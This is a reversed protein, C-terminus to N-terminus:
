ILLFRLLSLSLAQHCKFFSALKSQETLNKTMMHEEDNSTQNYDDWDIDESKCSDHSDPSCTNATFDFEEVSTIESSSSERGERVWTRSSSNYYLRKHERFIKLNLEKNCHECFQRRVRKAPVASAGCALSEAMIARKRILACGFNLKKKRNTRSYKPPGKPVRTRPATVPVRNMSSCTLANVETCHM